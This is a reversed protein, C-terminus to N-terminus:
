EVIDFMANLITGNDVLVSGSPSLLERMRQFSRCFAEKEEETEFETEIRYRIRSPRSRKRPAAMKM